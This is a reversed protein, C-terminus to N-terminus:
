SYLKVIALTVWNSTTEALIEAITAAVKRQALFCSHMM